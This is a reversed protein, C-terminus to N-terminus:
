NTSVKKLTANLDTMESLMSDMFIGYGREPDNLFVHTVAGIIKSDQIIPSGSMGQVIGGTKQLLKKDTVRIIMSKQEPVTQNYAKVIEIDFKEVKEGDITSLIYAKGEKVEEKFAIPYAKSKSLSNNYLDGYM